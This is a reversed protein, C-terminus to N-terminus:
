LQAPDEVPEFRERVDQFRTAHARSLGCTEPRDIRGKTEPKKGITSGIKYLTGSAIRLIKETASGTGVSIRRRPCAAPRIRALSQKAGKM